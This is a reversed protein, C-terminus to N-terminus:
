KPWLSTEWPYQLNPYPPKTALACHFAHPDVRPVIANAGAIVIDRVVAKVDPSKPQIEGVAELACYAKMSTEPHAVKKIARQQDEAANLAIQLRAAIFARDPADKPLVSAVTALQRIMILRYVLRENHPDIWHGAFPGNAIMGPLVGLRIRAVAEDTYRTEGTSQGLRALFAATFGNYNFNTSLPQAMAWDGARKASDLFAPNPAAAYWALMAEGSLGNDFQLDGKGRDDVIWGNSVVQDLVGDKRAQKVFRDTLSRVRDQSAGEWAPTPYVGKGGQTQAAILYAAARAGHGQFREAEEPHDRLGLAAGQAMAAISRLPSQAQGGTPPPVLEWWLLPSIGAWYADIRETRADADPQQMLRFPQEYREPTEPKPDGFCARAAATAAYIRDEDRAALAMHFNAEVQPPCQAMASASLAAALMATLVKM